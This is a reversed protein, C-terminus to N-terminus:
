EGWFNPASNKTGISTSECHVDVYPIFIKNTTGGTITPLTTITMKVMLDDDPQWQDSDLLGVGGGSQAILIDSIYTDYQPLDAAITASPVTLIKQIGAPSGVRSHGYNHVIDFTVVLDGSIATGNHRIHAHVYKDGGVVNWHEIHMTWDQVDGAGYAYGRVNDRYNEITPAALGITDVRLIGKLDMIPYTPNDIDVRIGGDQGKSSVIGKNFRLASAVTKAYDSFKQTM